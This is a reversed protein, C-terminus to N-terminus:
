VEAEHLPAPHGKLVRLVRIDSSYVFSGGFAVWKGAGLPEVILRPEDLPRLTTTTRLRVTLREPSEEFVEPVGEGVILVQKYLASPMTKSPPFEANRYISAILGRLPKKEKKHM